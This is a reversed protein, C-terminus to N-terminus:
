EGVWRRISPHTEFLAEAQKTRKTRKPPPPATPIALHVACVPIRRKGVKVSGESADGCWACPEIETQRALVPASAGAESVPSSRFTTM